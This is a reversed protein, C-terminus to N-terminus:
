QNTRVDSGDMKEAATRVGNAWAPAATSLEARLRVLQRTQRRYRKLRPNAVEDLGISLILLGCFIIVLLAVPLGWWWWLGRL